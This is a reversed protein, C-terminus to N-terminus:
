QILSPNHSPQIYEEVGAKRYQEGIVFKVNPLSSQYDQFVEPYEDDKLPYFTVKHGLNALVSLIKNSRPFGAGLFIYPIRDEIFLIRKDNM